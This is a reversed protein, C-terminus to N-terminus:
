DLELPPGYTLRHMRRNFEHEDIEGLAFRRELIAKPDLPPSRRELAAHRRDNLWAIAVGAFGLGGVLGVVVFIAAIADEM